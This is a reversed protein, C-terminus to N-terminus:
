ELNLHNKILNNTIIFLVASVVAYYVTSVIFFTMGSVDDGSLVEFFAMVFVMVVFNLFVLLTGLAVAAGRKGGSKNRISECMYCMLIFALFIFFTLLITVAITSPEEGEFLLTIFSFSINSHYVEAGYALVNAGFIVGMSAAYCAIASILKSLLHTESSVPLTNMLYGEDTYLSTHFRSVAGAIAYVSLVSASVSLIMQLLSFLVSFVESERAALNYSSYFDDFSVGYSLFLIRILAAAGIVVAFMAIFRKIYYRFEYKLLKGLM